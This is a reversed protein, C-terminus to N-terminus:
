GGRSRRQGTKRDRPYIINHITGIPLWLAQAIKRVSKGEARMALVQERRQEILAEPIAASCQREAITRVPLTALLRMHAKMQEDSM